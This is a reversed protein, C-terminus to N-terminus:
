LADHFAKRAEYNRFEKTSEDYLTIVWLLCTMAPIAGLSHTSPVESEGDINGKSV